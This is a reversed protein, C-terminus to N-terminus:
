RICYGCGGANQELKEAVIALKRVCFPAAAVAQM